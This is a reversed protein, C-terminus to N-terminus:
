LWGEEKIAKWELYDQLTKKTYSHIRTGYEDVSVNENLMFFELYGAPETYTEQIENDESDLVTHTVEHEPYTLVFCPIKNIQPYLLVNQEDTFDVIDISDDFSDVLEQSLKNQPNHIFIDAM